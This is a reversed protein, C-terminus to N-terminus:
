LKNYVDTYFIIEGKNNYWATSYLVVVPLIDALPITKPKQERLCQSTLSDIYEAKEQLLFQAFAVPKEVRMCGHSFFRKNIEFLGKSPTDHLYVTFPSYFNFKLLGLSNDCGTSQRITYPFYSTSLGSWNISYPNLVKGAKNLVEYNNAELYGINRKIAPLLERTAIKYPVHWYPYIIVEDIKSSLTPTPTSPKGAIIKSSITVSDKKYVYLTASPINVIAIQKENELSQLWRLTNLLYALENIRQKLPKNMAAMTTSKLAGDNFVDFSKQAEKLSAVIKKQSVGSFSDLYGLQFLKKVLPLNTNDVSRSKIIVESFDNQASVELLQQLRKKTTKYERRASEVKSLVINWNNQRSVELVWAAILEKNPDVDIGTYRLLPKDGYKLATLFRIAAATLAIDLRASDTQSVAQNYNAKIVQSYDAADFGYGAANAFSVLLDQKGSAPKIWAPEYNNWEYFTRAAKKEYSSFATTKDLELRLIAGTSQAFALAPILLILLFWERM